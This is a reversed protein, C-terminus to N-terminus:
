CVQKKGDSIHIYLVALENSYKIYLGTGDSGTRKKHKFFSMDDAPCLEYLLNQVNKRNQTGSRPRYVRVSENIGTTEATCLREASFDEEPNEPVTIYCGAKEAAAAKEGSVSVMGIDDFCLGPVLMILAIIIFIIKRCKEHM